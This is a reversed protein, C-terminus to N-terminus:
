AKHGSERDVEYEAVGHKLIDPVDDFFEEEDYYEVYNPFYGGDDQDDDSDAGDGAMPSQFTISSDENVFISALHEQTQSHKVTIFPENSESDVAFVLRKTNITTKLKDCLKATADKRQGLDLKGSLLEKKLEDVEDDFSM